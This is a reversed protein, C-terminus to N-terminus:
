QSQDLTLDTPAGAQELEEATWGAKQTHAVVTYGGDVKHVLFFTGEGEADASFAYDIEWSPDESSVVPGEIDPDETNVAMDPIVIGAATCYAEIAEKQTAAPQDTPDIVIDTPAGLEELQAATWGVQDTYDAIAVVTWSGDVKHLLFFHGDGEQDAPFAYDIEWNPDEKSVTAPDGYGDEGSVQLDPMDLGIEDCYAQIAEKQTAAGQSTPSAASETQGDDGCGALLMGGVTLAALVALSVLITSARAIRMAKRGTMTTRM